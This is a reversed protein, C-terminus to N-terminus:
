AAGEYLPHHCAGFRTPAKQELVPRDKGCIETAYTCRPAFNCGVEPLDQSEQKEQDEESAIGHKTTPTSSLVLESYPHVPKSFVMGTPGLEVLRGHYMVATRNSTVNASALDHTIMLVALNRKKKLEMLVSLINIRQSADLMTIPEDAVLLKPGPALARAINVRQREGGSLQHPLKDITLKPDLEVERLLKSVSDYLEDRNHVGLLKKIPTSVQTFVDLRPNLSEFPDQYIVQVERRYSRADSRITKAIDVGRFYIKGSTPKLLGLICKAITTKGSGSEGVLSMVESDGVEFSVDDVARVITSRGFFGKKVFEVNLHEVKLVPSGEAPAPPVSGLQVQSM